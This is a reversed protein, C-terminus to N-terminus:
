TLDRLKELGQRMEKLSRMFRLTGDGNEDSTQKPLTIKGEKMQSELSDMLHRSLATGLRYFFVVAGMAIDAPMDKMVEAFDDTGKYEEIIYREKKVFKVPRYLVAMAKHMNDWDTIYSDLDVFEGMTIDDLKPIFGFEIEVGDTGEMSFRHTLPPKEEFLRNLHEIIFSFDTVKLNYAEKLSLGCFIQMAKLNMLEYDVEDGEEADVVKLYKQYQHLTIARLSKPVKLLTRSSMNIYGDFHKKYRQTFVSCKLNKKTINTYSIDLSIM